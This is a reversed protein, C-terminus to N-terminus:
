RSNPKPGAGRIKLLSQLADFWFSSGMAIALATIIAGVSYELAWSTFSHYLGFARWGIPSRLASIEYDAAVIDKGAVVASEIQSQTQGSQSQNIGATQQPQPHLKLYEGAAAVAAQRAADGQWLWRGVTVTSVNCGFAIVLGLMLLFSQTRRKYWGAARDMTDNFWKELAFRIAQISAGQTTLTTKLISCLADKELAAATFPPSSLTPANLLASMVGVAGAPSLDLTSVIKWALAKNMLSDLVAGSFTEPPIYSPPSNDKTPHWGFPETLDIWSPAAKNRCLAIVLPHSYVNDVTVLPSESLMNKIADHLMLARWNRTTSILELIATAGFTVLLYLLVIGIAVDITKLPVM